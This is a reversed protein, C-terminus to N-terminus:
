ELKVRGYRKDSAIWTAEWRGPRVVTYTQSDITVKQGYVNTIMVASDAEGTRVEIPEIFQEGKKIPQWEGTSAIRVHVEGVVDAILLYDGFTALRYHKLYAECRQTVGDHPFRRLTYLWYNRVATVNDAAEACRLWDLATVAQELKIQRLRVDGPLNNWGIPGVPADHSKWFALEDALLATLETGARTGGAMALAKVALYHRDALADDALMARLQPLAVVGCEAIAMFASERTRHEDHATWPTLAAVRKAPDAVRMAAWVSDTDAARQDVIAKLVDLEKFWATPVVPGPNMVQIMAFVQDDQVWAIAINFRDLQDSPAFGGAFVPGYGHRAAPLWRTQHDDGDGDDTWTTSRVLFLVLTKGQWPADQFQALEPINISDGEHLDGRWSQSVTLRAANANDQEAVIVHTAVASSHTADFSPRLRADASTAFITIVCATWLHRTM